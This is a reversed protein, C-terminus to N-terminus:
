IACTLSSRHTQQCYRNRVPWRRDFQCHFMHLVFRLLSGCHSILCLTCKGGETNVTKAQLIHARSECNQDMEESKYWVDQTMVKLLFLKKNIQSDSIITISNTINPFPECQLSDGWPGM